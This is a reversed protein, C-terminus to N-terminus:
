QNKIIQITKLISTEDADPYKNTIINRLMGDPLGKIQQLTDKPTNAIILSIEEDTYTKTPTPTLTTQTLTSPVSKRSNIASVGLSLLNNFMSDEPNIPNEPTEEEEGNLDDELDAIQDELILEEHKQKLHELKDKLYEIRQNYINKKLKTIQQKAVEESKKESLERKRKFINFIGM